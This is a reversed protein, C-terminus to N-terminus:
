WSFSSTWRINTHLLTISKTASTREPVLQNCHTDTRKKKPWHDVSTSEKKSNFMCSATLQRTGKTFMMWWPTQPSSKKEMSSSLSPPKRAWAWERASWRTSSSRKSTKLSWFDTFSIILVFTLCQHSLRREPFKKPLVVSLLTESPARLQNLYCCM